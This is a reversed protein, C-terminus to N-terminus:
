RKISPSFRQRCTNAWSCKYRGATSRIAPEIEREEEIGFLGNDGAHPNLAAVAFPSNETDIEGDLESTCRVIYDFIREETCEKGIESFAIHRTLFFVKMGHVYFMTLPDYSNTLGALIETHGIYDVKALKLAEKNIPATVLVDAENSLCLQTAKKIYDYAAQGANASPKGWEFPTGILPETPTM